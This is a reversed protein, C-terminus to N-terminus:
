GNLDILESGPHAQEVGVRLRHGIIAAVLGGIVMIAIPVIVVLVIVMVVAGAM